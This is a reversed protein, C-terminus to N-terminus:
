QQSHSPIKAATVYAPHSTSKCTTYVRRRQRVAKYAAHTM